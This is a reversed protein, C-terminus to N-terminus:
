SSEASLLDDVHAAHEAGSDIVFRIKPVTKLHLRANLQQQLEYIEHSLRELVTGAREYPLVSLFVTAHAVDASVSAATVTVLVDRPVDAEHALLQAVEKALLRDLQRMRHSPAKRFLQDKSRAIAMSVLM